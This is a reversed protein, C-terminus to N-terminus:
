LCGLFLCTYSLNKKKRRRRRRRKRRKKRTKRFENISHTQCMILFSLSNRLGPVVLASINGFASTFWYMASICLTRFCAAIAKLHQNLYFYSWMSHSWMTTFQNPQNENKQSDKKVSFPKKRSKAIGTLSITSIFSVIFASVSLICMYSSVKQALYGNFQNGHCRM